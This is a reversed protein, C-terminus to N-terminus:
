EYQNRTSPYYDNKHSNRGGKTAAKRFREKDMSAYAQGDSHSHHGNRSYSGDREQHYANNHSGDNYYYSRSNLPMREEGRRSGSPSDYGGFSYLSERGNGSSQYRRGSRESGYSSNYDNNWMPNRDDERYRESSYDNNGRGSNGEFSGYRDSRENRVNGNSRSSYDDSRRSGNTHSSGSRGDRSDRNPNNGQSSYSSYGGNRSDNRYGDNNNHYSYSGSGRSYDRDFDMNHNNRRSSYYANRESNNSGDDGSRRQSSDGYQQSYQREFHRDGPGYGHRQDYERTYGDHLYGDKDREDDYDDDPTYNGRGYDEFRDYDQDDNGHSYYTDNDQNHYGTRYQDTYRGHSERMRISGNNERNTRMMM